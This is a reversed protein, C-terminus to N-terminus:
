KVRTKEKRLTIKSKKFKKAAATLGLRRAVLTLNNKVNASAM